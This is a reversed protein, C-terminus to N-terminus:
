PRLARQCDAAASVMKVGDIELLAIGFAVVRRETDPGTAMRTYGVPGVDFNMHSQLLYDGLSDVHARFVGAVGFREGGAEGLIQELALDLDVVQHARFTETIPDVSNVDIGLFDQVRRGLRSLQAPRGAGAAIIVEMFQQFSQGFAALDPDM